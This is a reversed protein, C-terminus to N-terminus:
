AAFTKSVHLTNGEVNRIYLASGVEPAQEDLIKADWLANRYRVRALGDKKNVWSDLVVSQGVDLSAGSGSKSQTVRYRNVLVVGITAVAAAVVAQVGLSYNLYSVAAGALGAVGIVLLYFTGTLLEAIILTMGAIAWWLYGEM